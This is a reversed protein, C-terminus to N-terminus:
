ETPPAAECTTDLILVPVSAALTTFVARYAGLLASIDALPPAQTDRNLPRRRIVDAPAALHLFIGDRNIVSKALTRM